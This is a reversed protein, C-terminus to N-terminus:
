EITQLLRECANNGKKAGEAYISMAMHSDRTVGWGCMYCHGLLEYADVNGGEVASTLLEFAKKDDAPCAFYYTCALLYRAEVNGLAVAPSLFNRAAEKYGDRGEGCIEKGINCLDIGEQTQKYRYLLEILDKPLWWPSPYVFPNSSDNM